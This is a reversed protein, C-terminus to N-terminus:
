INFLFTIVDGDQVIYNKGELRLLGHKRAEAMSGSKILDEYGTVEARIFGREMDSHIKGAAKIAETGSPIPWAKVEASATTFFTILGLLEYSQRIVRDVEPGQLGYDARLEEAAQNDLQALEMELKGCLVISHCRQDAYRENLKAAMSEAEALQDEGVNVVILLPKITLLQYGSMAKIEEPSLTQERIPVERELNAKIKMVIEQERLLGPREPPKAGKLSTEIRELRRELIALDSFSLELDMTAIDRYIDLSGEVHPVSDDEFARVVYMLANMGSIQALIGPETLWQSAPAGLKTSAKASASIDIYTTSAPVVKNPHLLDALGELRLDPVKTMGIHSAPTDEAGIRGGTLANFVTTRGSNDLGIIGIEISM